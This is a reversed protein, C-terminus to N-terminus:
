CVEPRPLYAAGTSLQFGIAHRSRRSRLAGPTSFADANILLASIHQQGATAFAADIKEVSTANLIVVEQRLSRAAPEIDAVNTDSNAGAPNTLIGITAAQPVLERLIELRKPGLAGSFFSVGTVNGGPRNLSAVLGLGVPNAGIAFVVPITATAAKAANANSTAFIVSVQRRVLEAALVPLESYQDTARYEIALNGGEVYGLESLGNRMATLFGPVAPRVSDLYGVVRMAPQQARAALPWAAAVGGLM